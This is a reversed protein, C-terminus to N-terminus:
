RESATKANHCSACLGQGNELSWAGLADLDFGDGEGIEELAAYVIHEATSRQGRVLVKNVGKYLNGGSLHYAEADNGLAIRPNGAQHFGGAM